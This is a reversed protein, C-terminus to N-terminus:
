LYNPSSESTDSIIIKKLNLLSNNLHSSFFFFASYKLIECKDFFFVLNKKCFSVHERWFWHTLGSRILSLSYKHDLESRNVDWPKKYFKLLHQWSLLLLHLSKILRPSPSVRFCELTLKQILTLSVGPNHISKGEITQALLAPNAQFDLAQDPRHFHGKWAQGEGRDANPNKTETLTQSWHRLHLSVKYM